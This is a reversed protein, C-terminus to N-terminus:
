RSKRGDDVAKWGRNTRRADLSTRPHMELLVEPQKASLRAPSSANSSRASELSMRPRTRSPPSIRSDLPPPPVVFLSSLRNALNNSTALPKTATPPRLRVINNTKPLPPPAPPKPTQLPRPLTRLNNQISPGDASSRRRSHRSQPRDLSRRRLDYDLSHRPTIDPPKPKPFFRLQSNPIRVVDLIRPSPEDEEESVFDPRLTDVSNREHVANTSPMFTKAMDGETWADYENLDGNKTMGNPSERSLDSRDVQKGKGKSKSKVIRTPISKPVLTV